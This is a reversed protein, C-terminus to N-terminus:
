SNMYERFHMEWRQSKKRMKTDYEKKNLRKQIRKKREIPLRKVAENDNAKFHTVRGRQDNKLGLGARDRKLVTAVPNKVGKGHPGLGQDESWGTDKLIKYGVNDATLHYYTPLNKDKFQHFLHSTSSFHKDREGVEFEVGCMECVEKEIEEKKLPRRHPSMKEKKVRSEFFLDIIIANDIKVAIDWASMGASDIPSYVTAGKELLYEVINVHGGATSCMLPTWNYQDRLDTSFDQSEFLERFSAFDGEHIFRFLDTVCRKINRTSMSEVSRRTKRMKGAKCHEKARKERDGTREVKNTYRQIFGTYNENDEGVKTPEKRNSDKTIEEYFKRIELGDSNEAGKGIQPNSDNQAKVFHNLYASSPTSKGMLATM